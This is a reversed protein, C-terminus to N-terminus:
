SQWRKQSTWTAIRQVPEAAEFVRRMSQTPIAAIIRDIITQTERLLADEGDVGLLTTAPRLFVAPDALDRAMALAEHLGAIAEPARQLEILARARTDLALIHYKVRGRARCQEIASEAHQVADEWAGRAQAIEAQAEAFRLRWLWGHFGGAKEVVAAIEPLLAEARRTDQRRAFNLLLDIGASAAPPQFNISKALTRAEEALAENGAYNFLDLHFGASMATARAVFHWVEYERGLRIAEEFVRAAEAYCGSGALAIGSQGLTTVLLGTAHWGRYTRAANSNLRIADELQGLWYTLLGTISAATGMTPTLGGSYAIAQEWLRASATLNGDSSEALSLRALAGATLDANRALRALELAEDAHVHLANMDALWYGAEALELLVRTRQELPLHMHASHAIALESKADSWRGAVMFASGRKAHLAAIRDPPAIHEAIALAEGLLAAEQNPAAAHSARQAAHVLYDLARQQQGAEVSHHALLDFREEERQELWDVVRGHLVRRQAKPLIEYAVDRILDHKFIYEVEDRFQSHPQVRLLEKHELTELQEEVDCTTDPDLARLGGAWFAKGFIAARHLTQREAPLLADLRAAILPKITPPVGAVRGQEAIMAVLEEAFLPNGGPGHGIQVAVEAPIGREHCLALVMAAEEELPLPNLPLSTFSRVGRGWTARKDLIEPRAQVLILLPVDHIQKAALEILDLLADDAWHIDEFILCLPRRRALAALFRRASAHLARQDGVPRMHDEAIDLASLLALHLALDTVSGHDPTMTATVFSTLKARAVIPEDEVAIGAVDKLMTALAWYALTTGYPLCRGHLVRAEPLLRAVFEAALRSKGIGPEGLLTVLHPKADRVVREWMKLLRGLEDDRGFLPATGLPRAEPMSAINLAEWIRLSQPKSTSALVREQYRVAQRTAQFTAAGVYVHGPEAANRIHLATSVTNGTVTYDRAGQPGLLGAIVEGTNLGIRLTVANADDDVLHLDHLALAARVAREADDEHSVPAGFVALLESGFIHLVIGGHHQIAQGMRQFCSDMFNKTDEPDLHELLANVGSIDAFLVTVWRREERLPAEAPVQDLPIGCEGCHRSGVATNAHCAPCRQNIATGCDTCFRRDAQTVAGCIACTVFESAGRMPVATGSITAAIPPLKELTLGSRAANVVAARQELPIELLEAIRAAMERSPRREDGEIKQITSRTCGVRRALEDQTIDLLKRRRRVWTGFSISEDM